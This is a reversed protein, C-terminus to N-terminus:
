WSEQFVHRKILSFMHPESMIPCWSMKQAINCLMQVLSETLAPYTLAQLKSKYLTSIVSLAILAKLESHHTYTTLLDMWGDMGRGIVTAPRATEPM